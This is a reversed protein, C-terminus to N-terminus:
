RSCIHWTQMTLYTPTSHEAPPRTTRWTKKSRHKRVKYKHKHDKVQKIIYGYGNPGRQFCFITKSCAKLMISFSAGMSIYVIWRLHNTDNKILHYRRENVRYRSFAYTDTISVALNLKEFLFSRLQMLMYFQVILTYTSCFCDLIRALLVWIIDMAIPIIHFMVSTCPSQFYYIILIM